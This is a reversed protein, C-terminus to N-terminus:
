EPTGTYQGEFLALLDLAPQREDSIAEGCSFLGMGGIFIDVCHDVSHEVLFDAVDCGLKMGSPTAVILHGCRSAQPCHFGASAEVCRNTLQLLHHDRLSSLELLHM